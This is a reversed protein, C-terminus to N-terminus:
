SVETSAIRAVASGDAQDGIEAMVAKILRGIDKKESVNLQEKHKLVVVRIDEDSLTPPLYAELVAREADETDARDSHGASRYQDASEQRQKVMRRLVALVEEDELMDTPKRKSAVMTETCASLSLRLTNLTVENQEKLAQQMDSQLTKHLM